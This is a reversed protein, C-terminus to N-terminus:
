FSDMAFIGHFVIRIIAPAPMSIATATFAPVMSASEVHIPELTGAGSTGMANLMTPAIILKKLEVM